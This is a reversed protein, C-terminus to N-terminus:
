LVLIHTYINLHMYIPDLILILLYSYQNDSYLSFDMDTCCQSLPLKLCLCEYWLAKLSGSKV